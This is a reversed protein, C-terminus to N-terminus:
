LSTVENSTEVRNWIFIAPPREDDTLVGHIEYFRDGSMRYVYRRPRPDVQGAEPGHTVTRNSYKFIRAEGSRQPEYESHREDRKNGQSDRGTVTSKGAQATKTTTLERGPKDRYTRRWIGQLAAYDEQLQ